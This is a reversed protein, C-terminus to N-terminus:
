VTWLLWDYIAPDAVYVAADIEVRIAADHAIINWCSTAIQEDTSPEYWWTKLTICWELTEFIYHGDHSIGSSVPKGDILCTGRVGIEDILIICVAVQLLFLFCLPLYIQILYSRAGYCSQFQVCHETFRTLNKMGSWHFWMHTQISIVASDDIHLLWCMQILYLCFNYSKWIGSLM